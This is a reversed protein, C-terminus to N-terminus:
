KKTKIKVYRLTKKNTAIDETCKKQETKIASIDQLADEKLKTMETKLETKLTDFQTNISTKLEDKMQHFFTVWGEPIGAITSPAPHAQNPTEAMKQKTTSAKNREETRFNFHIESDSLTRNFVEQTRKDDCDAVEFPGDTYQKKSKLNNDSVSLRRSQQKLQQTITQNAQPRVEDYDGFLNQVAPSRYLKEAKNCEPFLSDIKQQSLKLKDKPKPTAQRGKTSKGKISSSKVSVTKAGKTPKKGASQNSNSNRAQKKIPTKDIHLETQNVNTERDSSDCDESGSESQTSNYIFESDRWNKGKVTKNQLRSSKRTFSDENCSKEM